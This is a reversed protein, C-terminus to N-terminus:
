LINAIRGVKSSGYWLKGVGKLGATLRGSGGGNKLRDNAWNFGVSSKADEVKDDKKNSKNQTTAPKELLSNKLDAFFEDAKQKSWDIQDVGWDLTADLLSSISNKADGIDGWSFLFGLYKILDEIAVKL